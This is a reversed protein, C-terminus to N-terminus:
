EMITKLRFHRRITDPGRLGMFCRNRGEEEEEEMRTQRSILCPTMVQIWATIPTFQGAECAAVEVMEGTGEEEAEEEEQVERM